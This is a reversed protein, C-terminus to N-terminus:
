YFRERPPLNKIDFTDYAFAERDYDAGVSVSLPKPKPFFNMYLAGLARQIQRKLGAVFPQDPGPDAVNLDQNLDKSLTQAQVANRNDTNTRYSWRITELVKQAMTLGRVEDFLSSNTIIKETYDFYSSVELSIGYSRFVVSPNIRNFDLQGPVQPSQCPYAGFVKSDAWLNLQEDLATVGPPLDNQFYGLYFLGGKNRLDGIYHMNWGLKVITQSNPVTTVQITELPALVLDNFLYLNFTAAGNFFLGVSDISVCYDGEGVKIRYGAFNGGNAIPIYRLNSMREYNLTHEILAPRSFIANLCRMIVDRDMQQLLANFEDATLNPDEQSDLLLKLRCGEHFGEYTRSSSTALNPASLTPVGEVTPQTWGLRGQFAAM